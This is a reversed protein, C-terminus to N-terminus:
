ADDDEGKHEPEFDFVGEVDGMDEAMEVKQELTLCGPCIMRGDSGDSGEAVEWSSYEDDEWPPASRWCRICHEETVV